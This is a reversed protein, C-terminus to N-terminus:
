EHRLAAMPDTRMARRAPLSCALLATGTLLVTAASFSVLDTSATEFLFRSLFRTLGIAGALGVAIGVITLLLGQALVLAFINRPRAGLAMRVGIEHTRQSVWYALMGFVGVAALVLSLLAFLGLLRTRFWQPATSDSIADDITQANSVSQSSDVDQVAKRVQRALAVPNARSRLLFTASLPLLAQTYPIFVEPWPQQALTSDRSDAVVGVVTRWYLGSLGYMGIRKGIPNHGRFLAHVLAENMVAVPQGGASDQETFSRGRLLPIQMTKFYGPSITSMCISQLDHAAGPPRIATTNGECSGLPSRGIAGASVVGPLTRIKKLVANFFPVQSATRFGHTMPRWVQAELVHDPNFGLRVDTLRVLSRVLLGAGILLPLSFGIECVVLVSRLHHGQRASGAQAGGAALATRMDSRSALVAPALGSVLTALVTLGIAFALMRSDLGSTTPFHAPMLRWLLRGCWVGCFIGLTTGISALILSETLLQRVLRTRGAGLSSRIALERERAAGRAFSLNAVNASAILFLLGVAGLLIILLSRVDGVLFVHLPRVEIRRDRSQVFRPPYEHDIARTIASLASRAQSLSVGAKLRGIVRVVALPKSQPSFYPSDLAMPTWIDAHPYEVNAPMVGIITYPSDDLYVPKGLAGLSQGFQKRWLSESILAVRDNGQRDENASFLRGVMPRVGLMPFFGVTVGCDTVAVPEGVGSLSTTPPVHLQFAEIQRFMRNQRQWQEFDPALVGGPSFRLVFRETIWVLRSSDPYPLPKLLVADVISFIATNAGIGLALTLVAVTTFGPNKRLMRLGFRLDQRLTDLWAGIREARVEEKVQEVGGLEIRAARRAEHAPMGDKIKQDALLEVTSRIEDELDADMQQKQFVFRFISKAMSFLRTASEEEPRKSSGHM